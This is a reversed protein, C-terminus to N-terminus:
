QEEKLRPFGAITDLQDIWEDHFVPGVPSTGLAQPPLRFLPTAIYQAKNVLEM